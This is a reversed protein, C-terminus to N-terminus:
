GLSKASNETIWHGQHRIDRGSVLFHVEEAINTAHDGIRELAKAIALVALQARITDPATQMADVISEHVERHAEDVSKDRAIVELGLKVDGHVFSSISDRVMEQVTAGLTFLEEMSSIAPLSGLTNASRAIGTAKDAIRELERSIKVAALM